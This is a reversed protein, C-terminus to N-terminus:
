PLQMNTQYIHRHVNPVDTKVYYKRLFYNELFKICRNKSQMTIFYKEIIKPADTKLNCNSISKEHSRDMSFSNTKCM